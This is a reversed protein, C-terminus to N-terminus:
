MEARTDRANAAGASSDWARRRRRAIRVARKLLRDRGLVDLKSVNIGLERCAVDIAQSLHSLNHIAISAVVPEALM